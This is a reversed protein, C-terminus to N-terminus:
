RYNKTRNLAHFNSYYFHIPIFSFYSVQDTDSELILHKAEAESHDYDPPIIWERIEDRDMFGDKNKDRYDHFQQRERVVWEPVDEATADPAYMDSIYEDVSVKGDKNKDIDELTEEIVVDRMHESEEPHLFDIFEDKNLSNDKDVDALQWRRKDRRMMEKYTTADEEQVANDIDDMFGYTVRRYDDWSIKSKNDPNHSKWQREVDELIYNRQSRHIWDRLEEFTVFGDSDKDIKKVIATLRLKSEEPSLQDFTKAEERGLFAEHDYEVNHEGKSYHEKDSLPQDLPRSHANDDKQIAFGFAVAALIFAILAFQQVM